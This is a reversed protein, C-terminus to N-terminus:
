HSKLGRDREGLERRVGFGPLRKLVCVDQISQLMCASHLSLLYQKLQTDM